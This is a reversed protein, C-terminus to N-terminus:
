SRDGITPPTDDFGYAGMDGSDNLGDIVVGAGRAPSDSKLALTYATTIETKYNAGFVVPTAFTQAQSALEIDNDTIPSLTANATAVSGKVTGGGFELDHGDRGWGNHTWVLETGWNFLYQDFRITQGTGDGLEDDTLDSEWIVLNNRFVWKQIHNGGWYWANAGKYFFSPVLSDIAGTTRVFTNGLVRVGTADAGCKLPPGFHNIVRNRFFDIPGGYNGDVSLGTSSNLIYNDYIGINRHTYEGEIGDDGARTIKCRYIYCAKNIDTLTGTSFGVTDGFDSFDCNFVCHGTGSLTIGDSNWSAGGNTGNDVASEWGVTIAGATNGDVTISDIEYWYFESQAYGGNSGQVEEEVEGDWSQGSITFTRATENAACHFRLRRLPLLNPRLLTLEQEGGASPTTSAVMGATSAAWGALFEDTWQILGNFTCDYILCDSCWGLLQIGKNVATFTLNRFFCGVAGAGPEGDFFRIMAIDQPDYVGHGEITLNEMGWYHCNGSFLMISGGRTTRRLKSTTRNEGRIIIPDAETGNTTSLSTGGGGGTFTITTDAPIQIVTGPTAALVAANFEAETTVIVPTGSAARPLARTSFTDSLMQEDVGNSVFVEVEYDTDPELPDELSGYITGAFADFGEPLTPGSGGPDVSAYGAVIRWLDPADRWTGSGVERFRVTATAEADLEDTVELFLAIQEPTEADQTLEGLPLDGGGGQVVPGASAAALLPFSM